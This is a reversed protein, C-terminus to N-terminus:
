AAEAEVMQLNLEQTVLEYTILSLIHLSSIIQQLEDDTVNEFGSFSRVQKETLFLQKGKGLKNEALWNELNIINAM